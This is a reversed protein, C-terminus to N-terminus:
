RRLSAVGFAVADEQELPINQWTGLAGGYEYAAQHKADDINMHWTDGVCRGKVDYRYLFTGDPNEEIVLFAPRPMQEREDVGNTLEPPPGTYHKVTVAHNGSLISFLRKSM